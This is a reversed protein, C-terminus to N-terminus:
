IIKAIEKSFYNIIIDAGSRKISTLVELAAQEGDIWGAQAAAKIMSFEGSVHYAALPVEPYKTKIKYLVDLYTHAPKVMIIDAGEEIDLQVERLAERGNAPNMQYSKRDGFQPAGEAAQRFPGYFASSYKVSYSMIPIHSFDNRDLACRIISVQGDMMGSPAVIDAGARAHSIAQKALLPLTRDNDVDPTEFKDTIIGCHGHDTYECCCVDTIVVMDPALDKIIRIAKQIIGNDNYSEIAVGDKVEPIGFLIVSNLGLDMLEFIEDKLRDLSLQYHGPMSQIPEKINSGYKVFLPLVFDNKTLLTESLMSRLAETRRMRRLRLNLNMDSVEM